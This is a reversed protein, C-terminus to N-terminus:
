PASDFRAQLKIPSNGSDDLKACGFRRANLYAAHATLLIQLLGNTFFMFDCDVSPGSVM